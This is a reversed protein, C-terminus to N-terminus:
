LWHDLPIMLLKRRTTPEDSYVVGLKAGGLRGRCHTGKVRNMMRAGHAVGEGDTLGLVVAEDDSLALGLRVAVTLKVGDADGVVDVVRPADGEVLGERETLPLLLM